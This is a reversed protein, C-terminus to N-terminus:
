AGIAAAFETETPVVYHKRSVEASHGVWTCYTPEAFGAVKWDNECSPRMAQFFDPWKALGAAHCYAAARKFATQPALYSGRQM